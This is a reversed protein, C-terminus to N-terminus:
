GVAQQRVPRTRKIGGVGCGVKAAGDGHDRECVQFTLSLPPPRYSLIILLVSNVGLCPHKATWVDYSRDPRSNM